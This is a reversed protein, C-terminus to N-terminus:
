YVKYERFGKIVGPDKIVGIGKPVLLGKLGKLDPIVEIEMQAKIEGIVKPVLLDGIEMQAKTVM